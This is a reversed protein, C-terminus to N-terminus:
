SFVEKNSLHGVTLKVKSTRGSISNGRIEIGRTVTTVPRCVKIGKNEYNENKNTQKNNKNNKLNIFEELTLITCISPANYEHFIGNHYSGERVGYYGTTRSYGFPSEDTSAWGGIENLVGEIHHKISTGEPIAVAWYKPFMNTTNEMLDKIEVIRKGDRNAYGLTGYSVSKGDIFYCIEENYREWYPNDLLTEGGSWLMGQEYAENCLFRGEKETKAHYAVNKEFIIKM